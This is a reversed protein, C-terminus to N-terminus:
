MPGSHVAYHKATAIVKFYRPNDGQLGKIFAVAM